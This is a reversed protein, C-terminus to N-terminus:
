PALSLIWKMLFRSLLARVLICFFRIIAGFFSSFGGNGAGGVVTMLVM